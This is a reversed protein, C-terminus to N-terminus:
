MRTFVHMWAHTLRMHIYKTVYTYIRANVCTDISTYIRTFVHLYTYIRTFVLMWAIMRVCIVYSKVHYQRYTHKAQKAQTANTTTNLRTYYLISIYLITCYIYTYLITYITYYIYYIYYLIYIYLITCYIYIYLIYLITCYIYLTYNAQQRHHMHQLRKTHTVFTWTLKRSNTHTYMCLESDTRQHHCAHVSSALEHPQQKVAAAVDM